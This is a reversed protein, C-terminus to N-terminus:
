EGGDSGSDSGGGANGGANGGTKGPDSAAPAGGTAGKVGKVFGNVRDALGNWGWAGGGKKGSNAGGPLIIVPEVKNGTKVNTATDEESSAEKEKVVSTSEPAPAPAAEPAAEVPAAVPTAELDAKPKPAFKEALKALDSGPTAGADTTDSELTKADPTEEVDAVTVVATKAAPAPPTVPGVLLYRIVGTIGNDFFENTLNRSNTDGFALLGARIVEDIGGDFYTEVLAKQVPDGAANVLRNRVVQTAGGDWYDDLVAEQDSNLGTGKITNYVVGFSGRRAANGNGVFNLEDSFIQNGNADYTLNGDADLVPVRQSNVYQLKPTGDPNLVPNGNEDVVPETVRVYTVEGASNVVKKYVKTYVPVAQSNYETPANWFTDLIRRQDVSLGRDALFKFALGQAGVQAINESYDDNRAGGFYTNIYERQLPDNTAALLRERALESVGGGFFTNIEDAFAPNFATLFVQALSTAGGLFYTNILAQGILDNETAALLLQQVVGTAGTRIGDPSEGFYTNIFPVLNPDTVLANLAVDTDKAVKIDGPSMPPAIAVTAAVVGTAAFAVSATVFPRLAM